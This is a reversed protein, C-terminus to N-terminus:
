LVPARSTLPCDDAQPSGAGPVFGRRPRAGKDVLRPDDKPSVPRVLFVADGEGNVEVKEETRLLVECLSFVLLPYEYM